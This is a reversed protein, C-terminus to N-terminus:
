KRFRQHLSISRDNRVCAPWRIASSRSLALAPEGAYVPSAQGASLNFWQDRHNKLRTLFKGARIESQCLGDVPDYIIGHMSCRLYNGTEDFVSPHECDAEEAYAPVPQSFQPGYRFSSHPHSGAM